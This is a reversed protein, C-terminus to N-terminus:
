RYTLSSTILNLFNGDIEIEGLNKVLINLKTVNKGQM